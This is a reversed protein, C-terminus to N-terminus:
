GRMRGLIGEALVEPQEVPLMHGAGPIVTLTAGAIHSALYQAYKPPTLADETGVFIQTPVNLGDLQGIRDFANTCIWDALTSASSTRAQVASARAVRDADTTPQFLADIPWTTDSEVALRLQELLAPYVRLRAGTAILFLGELQLPADPRSLELAWELALGGGFSHGGVWVRPIQLAQMLATLWQALAPMSELAPGESGERGPLAPVIVELGELLPLLEDFSHHNGGAGHLLILPAIRPAVSPSSAPRSRWFVVPRGDIIAQEQHGPIHM